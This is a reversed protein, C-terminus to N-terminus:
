PIGAAEQGQLRARRSFQVVFILAGANAVQKHRDFGLAEPSHDLHGLAAGFRVEHAEDLLQEFGAMGRSPQDVQNQIVPVGMETGAELLHQSFFGRGAQQAPDLKM